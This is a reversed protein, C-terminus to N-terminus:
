QIERIKKRLSLVQNPAVSLEDIGIQIFYETLEM